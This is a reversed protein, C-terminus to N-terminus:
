KHGTREPDDGEVDLEGAPDVGGDLHQPAVTKAAGIDDGQFLHVVAAHVADGPREVEVVDVVGARDVRGVVLVEAGGHEGAPRDRAAPLHQQGM